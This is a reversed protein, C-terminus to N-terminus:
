STQLIENVLNFKYFIRKTIKILVLIFTGDMANELWSPPEQLHLSMVTNPFVIEDKVAIIQCSSSVRM